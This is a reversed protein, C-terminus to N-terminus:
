KTLPFVHNNTWIFGPKSNSYEYTHFLGQTGNEDSFFDIVRFSRNTGAQQIAASVIDQLPHAGLEGKRLIDDYHVHGAFVIDTGSEFLAKAVHERGKLRLMSASSDLDERMAVPHHLCVAQIHSPNALARGAITSVLTKLEDPNVQGFSYRTDSEDTQSSDLGYLFMQKRNELTLIATLPHQKAFFSNYAKCHIPASRTGPKFPEDGNWADHNGPINFLPVLAKNMDLTVDEKIKALQLVEFDENDESGLSSESSLFFAANNFEKQRGSRTVDGTNVVCVPVGHFSRRQMIPRLQNCLSVWAQYSHPAVDKVLLDGIYHIHSIINKFWHLETKRSEGFHLDSLHIITLFPQKSKHEKKDFTPDSPFNQLMLMRFYHEGDISKSVLLQDFPEFVVEEERQIAFYEFFERLVQQMSWLIAQNTSSSDGTCRDLEKLIRSRTILSSSFDDKAEIPIACGSHVALGTYLNRIAGLAEYVQLLVIEVHINRCKKLVRNCFVHVDIEPTSDRLRNQDTGAEIIGGGFGTTIPIAQQQSASM